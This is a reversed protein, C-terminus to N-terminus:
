SCQPHSPDLEKGSPGTCTSTEEGPETGPASTNGRQTETTETDFGQANGTDKQEEETTDTKCGPDGPDCAKPASLANGATLALAALVTACFTLITALRM